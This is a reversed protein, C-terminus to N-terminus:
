GSQTVDYKKVLRYGAPSFPSIKPVATELNSGAIKKLKAIDSDYKKGDNMGTM